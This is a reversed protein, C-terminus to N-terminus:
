NKWKGHFKGDKYEHTSIINGTNEDYFACKTTVVEGDKYVINDIVEVLGCDPIQNCSTLLLAFVLTIKLKM